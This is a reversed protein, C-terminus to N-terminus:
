SVLTRRRRAIGSQVQEILAPRHLHPDLAEHLLGHGLRKALPHRHRGRGRTLVVLLILPAYTRLVVAWRCDTARRADAGLRERVSALLANSAILTILTSYLLAEVVCQKRSPVDELAFSSKLQKFILEVAWRARYIVAVSDASLRDPPLNTVYLHYDGTEADRIGVLRFRATDRSRKGCYSRRPFAVEIEVDLIGRQLRALVDQLREGVLPVSAGRWQRHVAVIVPNAHSKLRTLFYGGNRRICDFLQYRFYGMDFLLLRNEVWKGVRFVTSDNVRGATVKVSRPGTGCASMVLHIKLAAKSHNTRSGPFVKELVDHLRVVTSDTLVLDKFDKLTGALARAPEALREVLGLFITKLFVVLAANFRDYFSSPVLCKGTATEFARRLGSITREKGCAFGFILTWFFPIPDIKKLRVVFESERAVRRLLQEPILAMLHRRVDISQPYAV